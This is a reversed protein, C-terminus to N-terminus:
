QTGGSALGAGVKETSGIKQAIAAHTAAIDDANLAQDSTITVNISRATPAAANKEPVAAAVASDEPEAQAQRSAAIAGFVTSLLGPAAPDGSPAASSEPAAEAPKAKQKQNDAIQKQNDAVFTAAAGALAHREADSLKPLLAGLLLAADDAVPTNPAVSSTNAGETALPQATAPAGVIGTGIGSNSRDLSRSLMPVAVGVVQVLATAAPSIHLGPIGTLFHWDQNLTVALAAAGTLLSRWQSGTLKKPLTIKQSM